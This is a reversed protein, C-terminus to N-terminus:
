PQHAAIAADTKQLDREVGAVGEPHRRIWSSLWSGIFGGGSVTSLYDFKKLIGASALGQIVGLGFTASRIGGGSICLATRNGRQHIKEYVYALRQEDTTLQRGADPPPLPGYMSVYEEELVEHLRKRSSPM